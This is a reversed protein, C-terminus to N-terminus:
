RQVTAVNKSAGKKYRIQNIGTNSIVAQTIPNRPMGLAIWYIFAQMDDDNLSDTEKIALEVRNLKM